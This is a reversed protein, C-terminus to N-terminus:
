DKDAPLYLMAFEKEIEKAEESDFPVTGETPVDNTGIYTGNEDYLEECCIDTFPDYCDGQWAYKSM